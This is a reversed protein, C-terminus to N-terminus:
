LQKKSYFTKTKDIFRDINELHRESNSALRDIASNVRAERKECVKLKVADLKVTVDAKREEARTERAAQRAEVKTKIADPMALVAQPQLLGSILTLKLLKEM